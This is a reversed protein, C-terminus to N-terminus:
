PHSPLSRLYAIIARADAHNMRYIHMPPQVTGGGNAREGKELVRTAQDDTYNSLGALAPAQDAWNPTKFVPQIWIPAGQLWRDRDLQNNKDRPTHCEPCKAIEEVLYKGRKVEQASSKIQSQGYATPALSALIFLLKFMPYSKM